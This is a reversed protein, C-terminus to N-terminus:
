KIEVVVCSFMGCVIEVLIDAEMSSDPVSVVNVKNGFSGKSIRDFIQFSATIGLSHTNRENRIGKSAVVASVWEVVVASVWEVVVASVWEVVVASVWEVVVASAWEVVVASVWEVVVASVWEVVVIGDDSVHILSVPWLGLYSAPDSLNTCDLLTLLYRMSIV